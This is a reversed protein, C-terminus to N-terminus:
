GWDRGGGGLWTLLINVQTLKYSSCVDLRKLYGGRCRGGLGRLLLNVQTLKYSNCADLRKLRGSGCRGGVDGGWAVNYLNYTNCSRMM